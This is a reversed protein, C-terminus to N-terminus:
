WNESNKETWRFDVESMKEPSGWRRGTLLVNMQEPGGYTCLYIVICLICLWPCINVGFSGKKDGDKERERKRKEEKKQGNSM